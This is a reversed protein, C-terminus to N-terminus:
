NTINFYYTTNFVSFKANYHKGKFTFNGRTVSYKPIYGGATTLLPRTQYFEKGKIIKVYLAFSEEEGYQSIASISGLSEWDDSQFLLTSTQVKNM